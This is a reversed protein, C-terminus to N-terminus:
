ETKNLEEKLRNIAFQKTEVEAHGLYHYDYDISDFFEIMKQLKEKDTYDESVYYDPCDGDEVIM